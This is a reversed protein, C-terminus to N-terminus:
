SRVEEEDVLAHYDLGERYAHSDVRARYSQPHLNLFMNDLYEEGNCRDEYDYMSPDGIICHLIQNNVQVNINEM